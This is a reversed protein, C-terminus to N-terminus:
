EWKVHWFVAPLYVRQYIAIASIRKRWLFWIKITCLSPLWVYNPSYIWAKGIFGLIPHQSIQLVMRLDISGNLKWSKNNGGENEMTFEWNGHEGWSWSPGLQEMNLADLHCILLAKDRDELLRRLTKLTSKSWIIHDDEWKDQLHGKNKAMLWSGLM